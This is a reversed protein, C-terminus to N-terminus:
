DTVADSHVSTVSVPIRSQVQEQSQLLRKLHTVTWILTQHIQKLQKDSAARVDIPVHVVNLLWSRKHLEQINQLVFLFHMKSPHLIVNFAQENYIDTPHVLGMDHTEQELIRCIATISKIRETQKFLVVPISVRTQIFWNGPVFCVPM